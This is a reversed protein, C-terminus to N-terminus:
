RELPSTAQFVPHGSEAFNIMMIEAVRNWEGMPKNVHTGYWKKECGPGLYSWCGSPFTKAYTAVNTSKAVCNEEHGPTGWIIHNFMSMFIIRGQFQEPECKLEAMMNQIENLNGLTTFGPFNKWEVEMQEGDIRDLEKLHRTELYWKIKTKGLM